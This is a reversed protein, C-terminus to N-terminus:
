EDAMEGEDLIWNCRTLGSWEPIPGLTLTLGDQYNDASNLPPNWTVLFYAELMVADAASQTIIHRAYIPRDYSHFRNFSQLLRVGLNISRGVYLVVDDASWFGYIGPMGELDEAAQLFADTLRHAFENSRYPSHSKSLWEWILPEELYEVGKEKVAWTFADAKGAQWIYSIYFSEPLLEVKRGAGRVVKKIYNLFHQENQLYSM